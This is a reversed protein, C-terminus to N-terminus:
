SFTKVLGATVLENKKEEMTLDYDLHMKLQRQWFSLMKYVFRPPLDKLKTVHQILAIHLSRFPTKFIEKAM